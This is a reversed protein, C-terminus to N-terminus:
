EGTGAKNWTYCAQFFFSLSLLRWFHLCGTLTSITSVHMSMLANCPKAAYFGCHM